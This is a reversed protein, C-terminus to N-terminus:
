PKWQDHSSCNSCGYAQTNNVFMYVEVSRAMGGVSISLDSIRTYPYWWFVGSFPWDTGWTIDASYAFCVYTAPIKFEKNERFTLNTRHSIVEWPGLQFTGDSNVGIVRIGYLISEKQVFMGAQQIKVNIEHSTMEDYLARAESYNKPVKFSLGDAKVIQSASVPVLVALMITLSTIYVIAKKIIKKM